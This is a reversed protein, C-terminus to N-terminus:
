LAGCNVHPSNMGAHYVGDSTVYMPGNTGVGGASGIALVNTIGYNAAYIMSNWGWIWLTQDTRLVSFDSFGPQIDTVGKLPASGTQPVVFTPSPAPNTTSNIGAAGETNDGWCRVSEGDLACFTTYPADQAVVKTPSTFGLVRTPYQRPVADGQALEDHSNNGWCWVANPSGKVVACAQQAGLTVQTVGTLATQGDTTIAQAYGTLLQTGNNVLWTLDGWCWLKGDTTIACAMNSAGDAVAVVGTLPTNAATFVTSARFLPAVAKTTGNGLQGSTNGNGANTQWCQVSGGEVAACGHNQGQQVSSIGTLPLGTTSDLVPQEQQFLGLAKGEWLLAGDTRLVYADYLAKICSGGLGSVEGTGTDGAAGSEGTAGAPGM